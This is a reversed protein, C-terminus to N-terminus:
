VIVGFKDLIHSKYDNGFVTKFCFITEEDPVFNRQVGDKVIPFFIKSCQRGKCKISISNMNSSTTLFLPLKYGCYPCIIQNM